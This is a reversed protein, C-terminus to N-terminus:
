QRKFLTADLLQFMDLNSILSPMNFVIPIYASHYTMCAAENITPKKMLGTNLSATRLDFRTVKFSAM